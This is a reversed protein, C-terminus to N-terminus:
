QGGRSAIDEFFKAADFAQPKRQNAAQASFATALITAILAAALIITKM